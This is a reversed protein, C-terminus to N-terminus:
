RVMYTNQNEGDRKPRMENCHANTNTNPKCLALSAVAYTHSEAQSPPQLANSYAAMANHKSCLIANPAGFANCSAIYLNHEKNTTGKVESAEVINIQFNYICLDRRGCCVCM